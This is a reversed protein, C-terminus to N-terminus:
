PVAPNEPPQVRTLSLLSDVGSWGEDGGIRCFVVRVQVRGVLFLFRADSPRKCGIKARMVSSAVDNREMSEVLAACGTEMVAAVHM